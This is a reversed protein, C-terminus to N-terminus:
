IGGRSVVLNVRARSPRRAGPRPNQAIM